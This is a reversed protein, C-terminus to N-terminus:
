KKQFAGESYINGANWLIWEDYGADYVAKIQDKVDQVGYKKYYGKGLWSATFDQLYPRMKAKYGPVAAIRNKAKVLSNYVVKYPELDPATFLVGNVSQGQGNQRKNAYHSPYVMPCIYDIGKGIKELEQGIGEIDGPSECIIGFVDASLPIGKGDHIEKYATDLFKCITDAKTPPNAGYDVEKRAATPFRVYDFQIEDFGKEIAEKAIDINYKWVDENYPNTWPTVGNERWIKGDPRKIALDARKTALVPDKFCVVRAIVYVNNEHLYKLVKEPNYLTHFANNNKVEPVNSIYNVRGDDKVDIVVANIETTKVLDVIHKLTNENGASAGTLYLGKVKVEKVKKADPTASPLPSAGTTSNNKKNEETGVTDGSPNKSIVKNKDSRGSMVFAAGVGVIAVLAILIVIIKTNGKM